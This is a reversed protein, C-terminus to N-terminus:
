ESYGYDAALLKAAHNSEWQGRPNLMRCWAMRTPSWRWGNSKLFKCVAKEPRSDFIVLIRNDEKDEKITFGHGVVDPRAETAEAKELSAIRKKLRRIEANNNSLQYPQFPHPEYSYQPVYERIAKKFEDPLDSKDLSAPNKLYAKHAKNIAKMNRQNKERNALKERLLELADPNDSSIGGQGVSEAKQQYYGAKAEEEISKRMASNSNELARRHRKESHHGVLIPQGMPIGEVYSGSRQYHQDSKETANDALCLYRDKKAEQNAHYDRKGM